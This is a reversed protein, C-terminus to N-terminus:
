DLMGASPAVTAFDDSASSKGSFAEGDKIKMVNDLAVSVGKGGPPHELAFCRISARYYAGSYLEEPDMIPSLNADVAGPRNVSTAQITNCNAFEEREMLDGDKIPSKMKPPIKGWKEQATSEVLKKLTTWFPDDKPLPITIQYKPKSSDVGPISRPEVLSVFSGRFEPTIVKSM